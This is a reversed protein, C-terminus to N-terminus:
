GLMKTLGSKGYNVEPFGSFDWNKTPLVIRFLSIWKWTLGRSAVIVGTRLYAWCCQYSRCCPRCTSRPPIRQPPMQLPLLALGPHIFGLRQNMPSLGRFGHIILEVDSVAIANTAFGHNIVQNVICNVIQNALSSPLHLLISYYQLHSNLEHNILALLKLLYRFLSVIAM